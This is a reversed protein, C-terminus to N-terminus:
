WREFRGGNEIVPLVPAKFVIADRWLRVCLAVTPRLEGLGCGAFLKLSYIRFIYLFRLKQPIIILKQGM